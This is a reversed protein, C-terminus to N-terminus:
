EGPVFRCVYLGAVTECGTGTWPRGGLAAPPMPAGTTAVAFVAVGQAVVGDIWAGLDSPSSICYVENEAYFPALCAPLWWVDTVVREQRGLSQAWQALMQRNSRMEQVGRYQYYVAVLV